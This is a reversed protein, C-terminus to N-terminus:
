HVLEFKLIFSEVEPVQPLFPRLLNKFIEKTLTIYELDCFFNIFGKQKKVWQLSSVELCNVPMYHLGLDFAVFYPTQDTDGNNAFLEVM